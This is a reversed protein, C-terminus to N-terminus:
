RPCPPAFTLGTDGHKPTVVFAREKRRLAAFTSSIQVPLQQLALLRELHLPRRFCSRADGPFRRFVARLAAPVPRVVAALPLAGTLVWVVPWLMNVLIAWGSLFYTASLLTSAKHSLRTRSRLVRPISAICGTAWRRQQNVYSSLDEPALGNALVEPEYM